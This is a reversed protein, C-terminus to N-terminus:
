IRERLVDELLSIKLVKLKNNIVIIKMDKKIIFNMFMVIFGVRLIDKKIMDYLIGKVVM